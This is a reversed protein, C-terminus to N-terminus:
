SPADPVAAAAAESVAVEWADQTPSTARGRWRQAGAASAWLDLSAAQGVPALLLILPDADVPRPGAPRTFGRENTRGLRPRPRQASNKVMLLLQNYFFRSREPAREADYARFSREFTPWDM